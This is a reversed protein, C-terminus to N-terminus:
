DVDLKKRGSIRSAKACSKNMELTITELIKDRDRVGARVLERIRGLVVGVEPGPELGLASMVDLGNIPLLDASYNLLDREIMRIIQDKPDDGEPVSEVFARWQALRPERFKRADIRLNIRTAADNVLKDFEHAPWSRNIRRRLDAIVTQGNDASSFFVTAVAQCRVIMQSVDDCLAHCCARWEHSANPPAVGCIEHFWKYVRQSVALDRESAFGLNHFSWTRLSHVRDCTVNPNPALDSNRSSLEVLYPITVRGAKFILVYSWAVLRLFSAEDSEGAPPRVSIDSLANPGVFSRLFNRLDAVAANLTAFTAVVTM